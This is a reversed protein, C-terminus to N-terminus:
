NDYFRAPDVFENETLGRIAADAMAIRIEDAAAGIHPTALMRPHNLLADCVAPEIAFVDFCAAKLRGANLADLLADEDVIEGRCTNILVADPRIRGIVQRSYLGRTAKTKPLHLSLVESRELLEDIGVPTVDNARYFEPFDKIDCALVKCGFPELLRVVEKGINGCGHIGVTRGTLLRGVRMPPREGARMSMNQEGIMRLGSIMFSMALEAVALKNVGFTYGFRIGHKKMADFDLSECGAAMKSITKLRPLASLTRDNIPEFAVIAADCDKLFDILVAEDTIKPGKWLRAGPYRELVRKLLAPNGVISPACVALQRFSM